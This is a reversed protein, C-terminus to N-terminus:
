IIASCYCNINHFLVGPSKFVYMDLNYNFRLLTAPGKGQGENSILMDGNELFTIGEAQNFLAPDLSIIQGVVGSRDFIFLLYDEASLLFLENTIPHIAIGSAHFKLVPEAAQGKKLKKVPLDINSTKAFKKLRGIDFTFVPETTLRKSIPNFGFIYRKDKSLNGKGSNEKCALLLMKSENDYCLGENNKSPIETIYPTVIVNDAKIDAIEYLLGDSRLVYITDEIRAIGEYDGKSYFKVQSCIENKTIDYFFLIGKEDQICAVTTSDIFTIGSLEHLIDPMLLTVDPSKFDYGEIRQNEYKGTKCSSVMLFAIVSIVSLLIKM